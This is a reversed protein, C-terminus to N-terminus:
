GEHETNSRQRRLGSDTGFRFTEAMEFVLEPYIWGGRKVSSRLQAAVANQTADDLDCRTWEGAPVLERERESTVLQELRCYWDAIHGDIEVQVLAGGGRSWPDRFKACTYVIIYIISLSGCSALGESRVVGSVGVRDEAGWCGVWYVIFTLGVGSGIDGMGAWVDRPQDGRLRWLHIALICSKGDGRRGRREWTREAWRLPFQLEPLSSTYITTTPKSIPRADHATM